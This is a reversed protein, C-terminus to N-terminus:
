GAKYKWTNTLISIDKRRERQQADPPTVVFLSQFIMQHDVIGEGTVFFDRLNSHISTHRILAFIQISNSSNMKNGGETQYVKFIEMVINVERQFIIKVLCSCRFM